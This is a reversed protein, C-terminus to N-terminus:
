QNCKEYKNLANITLFIEKTKIIKKCIHIKMARLIYKIKIHKCISNLSFIVSLSGKVQWMFSQNNLVYTMNTNELWIEYRVIQSFTSIDYFWLKYGEYFILNKVSCDTYHRQQPALFKSLITAQLLSSISHVSQRGIRM